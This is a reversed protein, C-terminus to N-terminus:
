TNSDGKRHFALGRTRQTNIQFGTVVDGDRDFTIGCGTRAIPDDALALFHIDTKSLLTMERRGYIGRISLKLTDDEIKLTAESDLDNSYYNGALAEWRERELPPEVHRQFHVGRGGDKILISDPADGEPGAELTKPDFELPGFAGDEFLFRLWGDDDRRLVPAAPAGLFSTGLLDEVAEFGYFMGNDAAYVNGALHSFESLTPRTPPESLQDGLLADLIEFSIQGADLGDRNIMVIIDLDHEPVLLMQASCGIVAGPHHIIEVGRYNYAWLGFGYNSTVGTELKTAETLLHKSAEPLKSHGLQPERRLFEAWRMMDALTSVIGGEGLNEENVFLGRRWTQNEEAFHFTAIGPTLMLDSRLSLTNHMGLPEFLRKNLIDEFSQETVIEMIQCALNYGGNNYIMGQGPPFNVAKQRLYTELHRGAPQIALGGGLFALEQACRLGSSHNLLHAVTPVGLPTPIAPFFGILLIM